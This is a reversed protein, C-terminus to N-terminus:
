ILKGSGDCIKGEHAHLDVRWWKSSRDPHQQKGTPSLKILTDCDPCYGSITV